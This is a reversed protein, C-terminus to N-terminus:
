NKGGAVSQTVSTGARLDRLQDLVSVTLDPIEPGEEVPELHSVGALSSIIHQNGDDLHDSGVSTLGIDPKATKSSRSLFPSTESVVQAMANREGSPSQEDDSMHFM